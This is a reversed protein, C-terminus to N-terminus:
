GRKVSFSTLSCKAALHELHGQIVEEFVYQISSRYM